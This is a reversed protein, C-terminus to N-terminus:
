LVYLIWIILDVVLVDLVVVIDSDKTTERKRTTDYISEDWLSDLDHASCVTRSTTAPKKRTDIHKIM